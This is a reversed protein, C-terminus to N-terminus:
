EDIRKLGDIVAAAPDGPTSLVKWAALRQAGEDYLVFDTFTGGTDVGLQLAMIDAGAMGTRRGRGKKDDRRFGPDVKGGARHPSTSGPKRRSSALSRTSYENYQLPRLRGKRPESGAISGPRHVELKLRRHAPQAQQAQMVVIRDGDGDLRQRRALAQRGVPRRRDLRNRAPVLHRQPRNRGAGGDA